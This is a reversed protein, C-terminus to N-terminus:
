EKNKIGLYREIWGISGGLDIILYVILVLQIFQLLLMFYLM